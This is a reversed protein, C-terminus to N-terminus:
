KNDKLIEERMSQQIKITDLIASQGHTIADPREEVTFYENINDSLSKTATFLELLSNNLKKMEREAIKHIEKPNYPLEGLLKYRVDVDSKYLNPLQVASISWQTKDGKSSEKLISERINLMKKKLKAPTGGPIGMAADALKKYNTFGARRWFRNDVSFAEKPYKPYDPSDPDKGLEEEAWRMTKADEDGKPTGTYGKTRSLLAYKEPWSKTKNILELSQEASKGKLTFLTKLAKLKGTSTLSIADLFNDQTFTFEEIIIKDGDKRAIIYVMEGFEDMADVLNTYSGHVPTKPSLLKLSVPLGEHGPIDNFAIMDQIPLNGKESVEDEQTGRLLAAMYGEFVFGAPAASFTTIITSLSELLILSAIIRRPSTIQNTEDVIRALFSIKAEITAEGGIVGFVKDMTNRDVSGPKGWSENPGFKPLVLLFEKGTREATNKLAPTAEERISVGGVAVDYIQDLTEEVLRILDNAGFKEKSRYHREILSELENM